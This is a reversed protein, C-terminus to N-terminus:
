MMLIGIYDICDSTWLLLSSPLSSPLSSSFLFINNSHLIHVFLLRKTCLQHHFVLQFIIMRYSTYGSLWRNSVIHWNINIVPDYDCNHARSKTAMATPKNAVFIKLQNILEILKAHTKEETQASTTWNMHPAERQDNKKKRRMNKMRKKKRKKHM